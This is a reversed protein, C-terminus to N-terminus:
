RKNQKNLHMTEDADIAEPTWSNNKWYAWLGAAATLGTTIWAELDSGEIPLVPHGTMVLVQNIVAMVLCILRAVPGATPKKTM